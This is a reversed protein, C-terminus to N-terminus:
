ILIFDIFLVLYFLILSIIIFGLSLYIAKKVLTSYPIPKEEYIGLSKFIKVVDIFGIINESKSKLMFTKSNNFLELIEDKTIQPKAEKILAIIGACITASTSTGSIEYTDIGKVPITVKSGPFFVEPKNDSMDNSGKGSFYTIKSQKSIAGVTIVSKSTGPSGITNSEPGFNGGSVVIIANLKNFLIDCSKSLIDNGNSSPNLTSSCTLLIDFKVDNELIYDFARLFDSMFAIGANDFIKFDIIKVDPCIGIFGEGFDPSNNKLIHILLTAHFNEDSPEEGTLNIQEISSYDLSEFNQGIGSDLFAITVNKGTYPFLSNKFKNINLLESVYNMSQYLRQDEEINDILNDDSLDLITNKDSVIILSPIINLKLLIKLSTNKQVFKERDKENKFSVITRINPNRAMILQELINKSIKDEIEKSITSKLQLKELFHPNIKGINM